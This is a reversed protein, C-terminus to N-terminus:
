YLMASMELSNLLKSLDENNGLICHANANALTALTILKHESNVDAIDPM